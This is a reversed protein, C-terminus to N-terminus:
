SIELDVLPTRSDELEVEFVGPITADFTLEATEGAAIDVMVDYGHLHIHDAVDSTVRLTVTDGLTVKQRGGGTVEGGAVGIDFVTGEAAVVPDDVGDGEDPVTTSTSIPESDVSTSSQGVPESTASSNSATDPEDDGCAALVLASAFLMAGARRLIPHQM